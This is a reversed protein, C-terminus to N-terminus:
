ATAPTDRLLNTLYGIRDVTTEQEFLPASSKAGHSFYDAAGGFIGFFQDYGSRLPSFSPLFGLHWKGVLTTGYGAQKLLSPLTPHGPPLGVDKPTTDSIPEELGVPLRMQYRGTILGTRTPSCNASNSDAQTSRMEEVAVRARKR